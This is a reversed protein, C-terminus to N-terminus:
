YKCPASRDQYRNRQTGYSKIENRLFIMPKNYRTSIYCAIPLGGYPIGCIIDFPPLRKYIEDGITNLLLPHSILNKMDYYYKSIEGSKLRFNGQKICNCEFLKAVLYGNMHPSPHNM